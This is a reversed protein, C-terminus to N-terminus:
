NFSFILAGRAVDDRFKNNITIIPQFAFSTSGFDYHLYEGRIRVHEFLKYELGGGLRVSQDQLRSRRRLWHQWHRLHRGLPARSGLRCWRHRLRAPKAHVSLRRSPPRRGISCVRAASAPSPRGLARRARYLPKVSNGSKEPRCHFPWKSPAVDAIWSTQLKSFSSRSRSNEDIGSRSPCQYAELRSLVVSIAAPERCIHLARGDVVFLLTDVFLRGTQLKNSHCTSTKLPDSTVTALAGVHFVRVRARNITLVTRGNFPAAKCQRTMHVAIVSKSHVAPVRHCPRTIQKTANV